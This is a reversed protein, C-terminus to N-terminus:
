PMGGPHPPLLLRWRTGAGPASAVQLVAGAGEALDTLVRLGFHGYRARSAAVDFGVGGKVGVDAERLQFEPANAAFISNM